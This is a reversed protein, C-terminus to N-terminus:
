GIVAIKRHHVKGGFAIDLSADCKGLIENMRVDDPRTIQQVGGSAM